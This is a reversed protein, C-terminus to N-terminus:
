GTLLLGAPASTFPKMIIQGVATAKGAAVDEASAPQRADRQYEKTVLHLHSNHRFGFTGVLPVVGMVLIWLAFSILIASVTLRRWFFTLVVVAGFFINFTLFTQM